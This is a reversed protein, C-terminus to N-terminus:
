KTIVLRETLMYGASSAKVFYVGSAFDSGSLDLKLEHHGKKLNKQWVAKGSYDLLTLEVAEDEFGHLHFTVMKGAPNPIIAMYHTGAGTATTARNRAPIRSQGGSCPSTGCVGLYDGHALHDSVANPAVCQTQPNNPNNPPIHCINVKDMGNGCRVDVVEVTVNDTGTAGGTDTVSVSYITIATPCVSITATTAGNSWLFSYPASGGEVTVTLDICEAPDYGLYVKECDGANVSLDSFGEDISGDCDNDVGDLIETANPSINANADDCDNGNDVFGPPQDCTTIAADLNGYGDADADLYYTATVGEDVQGDCDDDISNCVESAAPHIAANADNCDTADIVFGTPQSCSASPLDSNGYGDNDADYYYVDTCLVDLHTTAEAIPEQVEINGALDEAICIFRYTNGTEGTFIASTEQTKSLFLEYGGDNESVFISYNKIEGVADTGSWSIPFATQYMTASLPEMIGEPKTFDIINETENTTFIDFVEFQIHGKNKIVTGSPLNPKPKATYMVYAGSDPLLNYNLLDWKLVRTTPNFSAGASSIINLTTEDLDEDLTDTIFIDRAEINGINEFHIVYPLLKDPQIYKEALVLKENPDVAGNAKTTDCSCEEPSEPNPDNSEDIICKHYEQKCYYVTAGLCGGLCIPPPIPTVACLATIFGCGALTGFAKLCNFLKGECVTSELKTLCACGIVTSDIPFHPHLKVKYSIVISEGPNLLIVWRIISPISDNTDVTYINPIHSFVEAQSDASIYEFWPEIFEMIYATDISAGVNEVLIFYDMERGPVASTGSKFIKFRSEPLTLLVKMVFDKQATSGNADAVQVTFPFEGAESPTGSLVGEASLTLGDPLEGTLVAWTYPMTGLAAELTQSFASEYQADSITPTQIQISKCKGALGTNSRFEIESNSLARKYVTLEDLNGQTYGEGSTQLWDVFGISLPSNVDPISLGPVVESGTLVGDVYVKLTDAQRTLALHYWQDVIPNFSSQALWRQANGDNLYLFLKGGGLAFTWTNASLGESQGIFKSAPHFLDEGQPVEFSAFFDITFPDTGFAWDSHDPVGIYDDTGDFTAVASIFTGNVAVADHNGTLDAITSGMLNDFSWWAIADSIDFDSCNGIVFNKWEQMSWNGAENQTRIFLQHFGDSLSNPILINFTQDLSSGPTVAIIGGNGAVGVGPDTDFYYQIAVINVPLPAPVYFESQQSLSWANNQDKARIFLNHFGTSLTPITITFTENISSSSTVPIAAGNGIGPDSDIYYELATIQQSPSQAILQLAVSLMTLILMIKKM